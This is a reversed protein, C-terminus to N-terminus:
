YANGKEDEEDEADMALVSKDLRKIRGEEEIAESWWKLIYWKGFIGFYRDCNEEEVQSIAPLSVRLKPKSRNGKSPNSTTSNGSLQSSNMATSTASPIVVPIKKTNFRLPPRKM